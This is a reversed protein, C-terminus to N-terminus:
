EDKRKEETNIIENATVSQQTEESVQLIAQKLITKTAVTDCYFAKRFICRTLFIGKISVIPRQAKKVLQGVLWM